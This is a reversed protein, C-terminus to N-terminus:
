HKGQRKACSSHAPRVYYSLQTISFPTIELTGRIHKVHYGPDLNLQLAPLDSHLLFYVASLLDTLTQDPSALARSRVVTSSSSSRTTNERVLAISSILLLKCKNLVKWLWVLELSQIWQRM